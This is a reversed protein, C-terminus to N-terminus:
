WRQATWSCPLAQAELVPAGQGSFGSCSGEGESGRAAGMQTILSSARQVQKHGGAKYIGHFPEMLVAPQCRALLTQDQWWATHSSVRLGEVPGWDM